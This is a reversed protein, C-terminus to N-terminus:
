LKTINKSVTRGDKLQFTLVYVGMYYGTMNIQVQKNLEPFNKQQFRWHVTAHEYLSVNDILKDADDSWAITLVDRVPVPYVRIGSWFKDEESYPQSAISPAIINDETPSAKVTANIDPGRYKQNGADDYKFYLTTQSYYLSGISLLPLILTKSKM